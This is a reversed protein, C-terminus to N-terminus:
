PRAGAGALGLAGLVRRTVEDTTGAADVTRLLGAEAYFRAVPATQEAYVALRQRVTDPRDDTRQYLEGGCHDCLGRVAPPASRLHFIHGSDARCVQRGGIRRVVEEEDVAFELVATLATGTEALITELAKAQVASRPCGDLVCGDRVSSSHLRGRVIATILADPVLRGSDLFDAARRGLVTGATVQERLLDGTSLHPVGFREALRRAQTGKGAGPPGLLVVRM